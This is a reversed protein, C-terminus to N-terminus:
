MGMIFSFLKCCKADWCGVGGEISYRLGLHWCLFRWQVCLLYMRTVGADYKAGVTPFSSSRAGPGRRNRRPRSGFCCCSFRSEGWLRGFQHGRELFSRRGRASGPQFLLDCLWRQCEPIDWNTLHNSFCALILFLDLHTLSSTNWRLPLLCLSASVLQSCCLHLPWLKYHIQSYNKRLLSM